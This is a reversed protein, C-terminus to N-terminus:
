PKMVAEDYALLARTLLTTAAVEVANLKKDVPAEGNSSRLKEAEEPAAQFHTREAGLLQALIAVEGEGPERSTLLRFATRCRAADDNPFERVLKESLVRASELFQPDNFLVLAQLPTASKERRSKCFERTPADFVTMAPPPLTRRWFTYVSRRFLDAGKSQEYSHQTGAEEWLGAPQYPMVPQGGIRRDLLGSVALANDRLQEATLRTRPGRALLRNEPDSQLLAPDAPRSSQRYTESLVIRRCFAKIDWGNEMFDVALWDLLAHHTPLQGQLGFDESTMVIGSGFFMQWLRNVMVRSTLPNRKDVLWQALGLRNKPFEEPFAFVSAPTNPGVLQGPADFKGRELIHTPRRRDEPNERMVMIEQMNDSLKNEESRLAYLEDTLRKWTGDQERLWCDFWEQAHVDGLFGAALRIEVPTLECRWFCFDDVDADTLSNDNHRTALTLMASEVSDKGTFVASYSIDKYLNDRVVDTEALNGNLYIKAGSAHSSGDYTVAVHTWRGVPLEQRGLVRIANGPWFHIIGFSPKGNEILVEFGRSGADLGARSRHMVVARELKKDVKLWISMTFPDVRTIDAAKSVSVTNDGKFRFGKGARGQVLKTKLRSAGPLKPNGENALVKDEGMEEFSLKVEPQAAQLPEPQSKWWQEFRPRAAIKAGALEAEKMSIKLKLDAHRREEDKTKYVFMSPAPISDTYVTYLGCEDINNLFAAMGYYEKMTIPDYKHDHCRACELSLGLFAIGNTRVRDAIIDQRFEEENSGAENSQQALRNFATALYMDQTPNPMMDGATQWEIFKDYPLNENFMRIVWDRYPWTLCDHDEHRGYTDAFRAVDLWEIAMREGYSSSSLLRDAVKEFAQSTEDALFDDLEKLTPPLGTLDFTVRRLWEERKAPESPSVSQKSLNERVFLDVPNEIAYGEASKAEVKPLPAKVPPIFSWHQEYEAGQAIWQKLLSIQVESLPRREKPPPMVEEEDHTLIREVLSSEDPKGPVIAKLSVASGREDLRLKAKRQKEDQGHCKLCHEALIPRIQFNYSIKGESVPAPAALSAPTIPSEAFLPVGISPLM